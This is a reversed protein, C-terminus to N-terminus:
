FQGLSEPNLVETKHGDHPTFVADKDESVLRLITLLSELHTRVEVGPLYFQGSTFIGVGQGACLGSTLPALAGRCWSTVSSHFPPLSGVAGVLKQCPHVPLFFNGGFFLCVFLFGLFM